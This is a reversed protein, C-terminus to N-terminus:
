GCHLKCELEKSHFLIFAETGTVSGVNWTSLTWTLSTAVMSSWVPNYLVAMMTLIGSSLTTRSKGWSRHHWAGEALVPMVWYSLAQVLCHESPIFEMSPVLLFLPLMFTCVLRAFLPPTNMRLQPQIQAPLSFQKEDIETM